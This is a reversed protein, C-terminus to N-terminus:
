NERGVGVYCQKRWYRGQVMGDIASCCTTYNVAEPQGEKEASVIFGRGFLGGRRAVRRCLINCFIRRCRRPIKKQLYFVDWGHLENNIVGLMGLLVKMSLGLDQYVM